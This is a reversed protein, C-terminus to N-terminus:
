SSRKHSQGLGRKLVKQLFDKLIGLAKVHINFAFILNAETLRTESLSEGDGFPHSFATLFHSPPM